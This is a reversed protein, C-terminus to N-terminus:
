TLKIIMGAWIVYLLGILSAAEVELDFFTKSMLFKGSRSVTRSTASSKRTDGSVILRQPLRPLSGAM